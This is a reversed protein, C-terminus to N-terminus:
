KKCQYIHGKSSWSGIFTIRGLRGLRSKWSRPTLEVSWKNGELERHVWGQFVKGKFFPPTPIQQFHVTTIGFVSLKLPESLTQCLLLIPWTLGYYYDLIIHFMFKALTLHSFAKNHPNWIIAKTLSSHKSPKTSHLQSWMLLGNDRVILRFPLGSDSASEMGPVIIKNEQPRWGLSPHDEQYRKNTFWFGRATTCSSLCLTLIM